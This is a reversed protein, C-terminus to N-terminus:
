GRSREETMQNASRWGGRSPDKDAYPSALRRTCVELATTLRDRDGQLVLIHDNARKLDEALRNTTGVAAALDNHLRTTTSTVEALQTRLTAISAQLAKTALQRQMQGRTM